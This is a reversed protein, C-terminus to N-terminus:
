RRVLEEIITPLESENPYERGVRLRVAAVAEAVTAAWLFHTAQLRLPRVLLATLSNHPTLLYDRGTLPEVRPGKRGNELTLIVALALPTRQGGEFAFARQPLGPRVPKGAGPDLGLREVADPWLRLERGEPVAQPRGNSEVRLV